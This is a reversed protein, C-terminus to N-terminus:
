RYENAATQYDGKASRIVGLNNHVQALFEDSTLNRMFVGIRISAEPIKQDKIYQEDPINAGRELTEINIRTSGDDYRLFLHAPTSVAFIPLDMREAAVLFLAAIGVCYGQKRMLVYSPLLNAPEDLEQTAKIGLRDFILDNLTAVRETGTQASGPPPLAAIVADLEPGLDFPAAAASTASSFAAEIVVLRSLLTRQSAADAVLISGIIVSAFMAGWRRFQRSKM